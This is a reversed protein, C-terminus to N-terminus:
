DTDSDDDAIKISSKAEDEAVALLKERAEQSRGLDLPVKGNQNKLGKEAGADILVKIVDVCDRWAAV